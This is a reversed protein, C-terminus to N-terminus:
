AERGLRGALARHVAVLARERAVPAGLAALSSMVTPEFDCPRILAFRALDNELNLAFGHFTVWRQVAIGISAVKKGRVWLGTPLAEGFAPAGDAVLGTLELVAVSLAGELARLFAHVDREHAGLRVIPYGVLQGPGHWTAAGGREVVATEIGLGRLRAVESGHDRSARQATRGLTVIEPHEVTLLVDSALTGKARELVLERQLELVEGYARRGLDRLELAASV